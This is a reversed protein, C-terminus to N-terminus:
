EKHHAKLIERATELRAYMTSEAIGMIHAMDSVSMKLYYHVMVCWRQSESLKDVHNIFDIDRSSEELLRDAQASIAEDSNNHTSSYEKRQIMERAENWVCANVYAWLSQEGHMGRFFIPSNHNHLQKAVHNWARRQVDELNLRRYAPRSELATALAIIGIQLNHKIHSLTHEDATDLHVSSWMTPPISPVDIDNFRFTSM